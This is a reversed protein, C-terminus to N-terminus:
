QHRNLKGRPYLKKFTNLLIVTSKMEPSNLYKDNFEPFYGQMSKHIFGAVIYCKHVDKCKSINEMTYNVDNICYVNDVFLLHLERTNADDILEIAENLRASDFNAILKSLSNRVRWDPDDAILLCNSLQKASLKKWNSNLGNIVNVRIGLDKDALFPLVKEILEVPCENIETFIEIARANSLYNESELFEYLREVGLTLLLKKVDKIPDRGPPVKSDLDKLYVLPDYGFEDVINNFKNM